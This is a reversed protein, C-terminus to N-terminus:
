GFFKVWKLERATLKEGYAGKREDTWFADIAEEILIDLLGKAM